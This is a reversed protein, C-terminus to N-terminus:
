SQQTPYVRVIHVHDRLASTVDVSLALVSNMVIFKRRRLWDRLPFTNSRSTKGKGRLRALVVALVVFLAVLMSGLIAGVIAAVTNPGTGKTPLQTSLPAFGPFPIKDDCIILHDLTYPSGLSTISILLTHQSSPLQPSQFFAQNPIAMKVAPLPLIAPEQGAISYNAITPVNTAVQPPEVIGVVVISTGQLLIFHRCYVIFSSEM